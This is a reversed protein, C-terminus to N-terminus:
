YIANSSGKWSIEIFRVESPSVIYGIMLNHNQALRTQVNLSPISHKKLYEVEELDLTDGGGMSVYADYSSGHRRSVVYTKIRCNTRPLNNFELTFNLKPAVDIGAYRDHPDVLFSGEKYLDTPKAYNYLLIRICKDARVIYFGEGKALLTGEMKGLLPLVTYVAKAVGESNIAGAGGCYPEKTPPYVRSFDSFASLSFCDLSSLNEIYNKTLYSSYFCTDQLYDKQTAAFGFSALVIPAKPYGYDLLIKKVMELSNRLYNEDKHYVARGQQKELYFEEAYYQFPFFAFIEDDKAAFDMFRKLMEAKSELFLPTCPVGLKAEPLFKRVIKYTFSHFDMFDVYADWSLFGWGGPPFSWISYLWTAIESRGFREEIHEFFADLLDKWVKNDKPAYNRYRSHGLYAPSTKKCLLTPCFSLQLYPKMGLSLAFFIVRDLFHFNYTYKGDADLTVIDFEDTFISSLSIYRFHMKSQLDKLQEQIEGMLLASAEPFCVMKSITADVKEGDKFADIGRISIKVEDSPSDSNPDHRMMDYYKGLVALAENLHTASIPSKSDTQRKALSANRRYESPTVGFQERFVRVFSRPDEFGNDEAIKLITKNGNFLDSLAYNLRVGNYYDYFGKSFNKKFFASLYAPTLHEHEALSKLSIRNKYNENIYDLISQMRDSYRGVEEIGSAEDHFHADLLSLLEYINSALTFFSEHFTDNRIIKAMITRVNDYYSREVATSKSFLFYRHAKDEGVLTLLDFEVVGLTAGEKSHCTFAENPNVLLLDEKGAVFAIGNVYFTVEGALVFYLALTRKYTKGIEFIRIIATHLGLNEVSKPSKTINQDLEM